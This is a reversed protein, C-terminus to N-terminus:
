LCVGLHNLVASLWDPMQHLRERRGNESDIRTTLPLESAFFEWNYRSGTVEVFLDREERALCVEVHHQDAPFDFGLEYRNM